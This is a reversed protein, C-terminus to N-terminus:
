QTDGGSVPESTEPSLDAHLLRTTEFLLRDVESPTAEIGRERQRAKEDDLEIDRVTKERLGDVLVSARLLSSMARAGRDFEVRDDGATGKMTSGLEEALGILAGSFQELRKLRRESACKEDTLGQQGACHASCAQEHAPNGVLKLEKKPEANPANM